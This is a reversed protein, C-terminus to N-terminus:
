AIAIALQCAYSWLMGEGILMSGPADLFKEKLTLAGPHFDHVFIVAAADCLPRWSWASRYL